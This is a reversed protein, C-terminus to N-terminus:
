HLHGPTDNYLQPTGRDQAASALAYNNYTMDTDRIAQRYVRDMVNENRFRTKTGRRNTVHARM